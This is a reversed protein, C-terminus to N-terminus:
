FQDSSLLMRPGDDGDDSWPNPYDGTGAELTYPTTSQIWKASSLSWHPPAKHVHNRNRHLAPLKTVIHSIILKEFLLIEHLQNASEQLHCAANWQTQHLPWKSGLWHGGNCTWGHVCAYQMAKVVKCSKMATPHQVLSCRLTGSRPLTLFAPRNVIDVLSTWMWYYETRPLITPLGDYGVLFHLVFYIYFHRAHGKQLFIGYFFKDTLFTFTDWLVGVSTCPPSSTFSRSMWSRLLLHPQTTLM